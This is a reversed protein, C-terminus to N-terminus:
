WRAAVSWREARGYGRHNVFAWTCDYKTPCLSTQALGPEQGMPSLDKLVESSCSNAPGVKCHCGSNRRRNQDLCLTQASTPFRSINAFPRSWSKSAASSEAVFGHNRRVMARGLQDLLWLDCHLASPVTPAPRVVKAQPGDQPYRLQGPHYAGGPESARKERHHRSVLGM